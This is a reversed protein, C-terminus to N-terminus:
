PFAISNRKRPDTRVRYVAFHYALNGHFSIFVGQSTETGFRVFDLM